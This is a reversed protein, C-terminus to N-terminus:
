ADEEDIQDQRKKRQEIADSMKALFDAGDNFDASSAANKRDNKYQTRAKRLDTNASKATSMFDQIKAFVSKQAAKETKEQEYTNSLEEKDFTELVNVAQNTVGVLLYKDAVEVLVIQKDRAVAMRDVINIHRGRMLRNGKSSIFKTTYYAGLIVALMAVIVWITPGWDGM